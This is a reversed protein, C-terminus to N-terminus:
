EELFGERERLALWAEIEEKTHLKGRGMGPCGRAHLQWQEESAVVASWFPFARCQVPRAGYQSCGGNEWLICDYNPKEKLSLRKAIGVDVVRCYRERFEKQTLNLATALRQLDAASLFVYGPTHRCCASCRTCEFRLGSDHFSKQQMTSRRPEALGAPFFFGEEKM